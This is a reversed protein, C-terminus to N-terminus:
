KKSRTKSKVPESVLPQTGKPTKIWEQTAELFYAKLYNCVSAIAKRASM